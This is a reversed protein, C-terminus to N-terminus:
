SESDQPTRKLPTDSSIITRTRGDAFRVGLRQGVTKPQYTLITRDAFTIDSMREATVVLGIGWDPHSPDSVRDGVAFEEPKWNAM